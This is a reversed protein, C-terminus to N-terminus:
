WDLVDCTEQLDPIIELSKELFNIQKGEDWITIYGKQSLQSIYGKIQNVSLGEVIVEDAYTFDGGAWKHGEKIGNLVQIEISNLM